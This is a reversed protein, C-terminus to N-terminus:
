NDQWVFGCEYCGADNEKDSPATNISGCRPCALEVMVDSIAFLKVIEQAVKEFEGSWLWDETEPEAMVGSKMKLESSNKLLIDIIKKKM